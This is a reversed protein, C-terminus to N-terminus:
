QIVRALRLLALDFDSGCAKTSALNVVIQPKGGHAGVGFAMGREVDDAQAAVALIQRAACVRKVQALEDAKFGPMVYAAAWRGSRLAQDLSGEDAAAVERFAVPMGNLTREPLTPLWALLEDVAERNGKAPVVIAIRVQDGVRARLTRDYTLARLLLPVQVDFPVMPGALAPPATLPLVALALTALICALPVISRLRVASRVPVSSRLAFILRAMPRM